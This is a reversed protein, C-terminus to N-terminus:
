FGQFLMDLAATIKDGQDALDGRVEALIAVPVTAILHTAMVYQEAGIEFVPQLRAIAPPVEALPLLPVVVRTRAIDILDSQVDLLYRGRGPAAFVQFRAM